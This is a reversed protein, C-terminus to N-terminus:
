GVGVAPDRRPERPAPRDPRAPRATSRSRAVLVHYATLFVVALALVGTVVVYIPHGADTGATVGHLLGVWFLLYSTRHIRKWWRRPLRKMALSTAEVAVLLYMAVVGLAVPWPRWTSAGPVLIERWGFHVTTDLVLGVLHAGTFSVSLGGLFRHVALLWKPSPHGQLVRSSVFLGWVTALGTLVLAVIGAARAVYWALAPDAVLDGM